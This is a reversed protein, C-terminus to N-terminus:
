KPRAHPPPDMSIMPLRQLDRPVGIDDVLFIGRRESSFTEFDRTVTLVDDYRVISWFGGEGPAAAQPRHPVPREGQLAAFVDYPVGDDWLRADALDISSLDSIASAM